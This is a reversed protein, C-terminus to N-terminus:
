AGSAFIAVQLSHGLPKWHGVLAIRHTSPAMKVCCHLPKRSGVPPTHQVCRAHEGVGTNPQSQKEAPLLAGAGAAGEAVLLAVAQASRPSSLTRERGPCNSPSKQRTPLVAITPRFACKTQTTTGREESLDCKQMASCGPSCRSQQHRCKQWGWRQSPRCGSTLPQVALQHDKAQQRSVM